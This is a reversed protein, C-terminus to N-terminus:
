IKKPAYRKPDFKKLAKVAIPKITIGIWIDRHNVFYENCFMWMIDVDYLNTSNMMEIIVNGSFDHRSGPRRILIRTTYPADPTIVVVKNTEDLDYVNAKGSVFFEEEVYGYKDLDQPVVSRNAACLPYSDATVKIPGTVSPISVEAGLKNSFFLFLFFLFPCSLRIRSFLSFVM